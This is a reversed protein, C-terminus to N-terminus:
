KQKLTSVLLQTDDSILGDVGLETLRRMISQRNVTWVFVQKRAAHLEEILMASALTQHIMLAQLPLSPWRKLQRLNECILALPLGQRVSDVAQLVDPVFSSIVFHDHRVGRLLELIPTVKGPVKLEIDLYAKGAYTQIVDEACPLMLERFSRADIRKRKYRPNHCVVSRGDKTYRIDFEFGDCGHKLALDFAAPTNEPAYKSAGRHGLLLPRNM